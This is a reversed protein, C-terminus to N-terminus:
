NSAPTKAVVGRRRWLSAVLVVIIGGMELVWNWRAGFVTSHIFRDIHDFSAARILVYGIVFTTGILALWTPLPAKRAWVVLTVTAALCCITIVLIFGVQVVARERYWGQAMAIVRGAETLATQLDLQKNIGLALFVIAIVRWIGKDSAGADLRRAMMWCSVVALFYLIVTVWGGITPDGIGPRWDFHRLFFQLSPVPVM